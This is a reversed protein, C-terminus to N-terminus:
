ELLKLAQNEIDEDYYLIRKHDKYEPIHKLSIKKPEDYYINEEVDYYKYMYGLNQAKNVQDKYVTLNNNTSSTNLINLEPIDIFSIIQENLYRKNQIIVLNILSYKLFPLNIILQKYKEFEFGNYFNFNTPKYTNLLFYNFYFKSTFISICSGALHYKDNDKFIEFIKFCFDVNISMGHLICNIHTSDLEEPLDTINGFYLLSKNDM